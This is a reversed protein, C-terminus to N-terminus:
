GRDESQLELARAYIEKRPLGTIAATQAVADRLSM